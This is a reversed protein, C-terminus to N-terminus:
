RKLPHYSIPHYCNLLSIAPPFGQSGIARRVRLCRVAESSKASDSGVPLAKRKRSKCRASSVCCGVVHRWDRGDLAHEEPAHTAREKGQESSAGNARFLVLPGARESPNFLSEGVDGDAEGRADDGAAVEPSSCDGRRACREPCSSFAPSPAPRSRMAPTPPSSISALRSRSRQM